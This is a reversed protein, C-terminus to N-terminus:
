IRRLFKEGAYGRPWNMRGADKSIYV